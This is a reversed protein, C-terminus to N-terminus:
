KKLHIACAARNAYLIANQGDLQIAEAYKDYAVSWEGEAFFANGEKKLEQARASNPM